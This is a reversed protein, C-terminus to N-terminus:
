GISQTDPKKKSAELEAKGRVALEANIEAIAEKAQAVIADRDNSIKTAAAELQERTMKKYDPKTM